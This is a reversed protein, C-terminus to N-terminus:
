GRGNFEYDPRSVPDPNTVNIDVLHALSVAFISIISVISTQEIM